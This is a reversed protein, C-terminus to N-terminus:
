NFIFYTGQCTGGGDKRYGTYCDCTFSGATNVCYQPCNNITSNGCEDIDTFICISYFHVTANILSNKFM